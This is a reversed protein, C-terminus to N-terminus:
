PLPDLGRQRPLGDGGQHLVQLVPPLPWGGPGQGRYLVSLWRGARCRRQDEPSGSERRRRIRMPRDSLCRSTLRRASLAAGPDHVYLIYGNGVETSGIAPFNISLLGSAGIAFDNAVPFSPPNGSRQLVGTGLEDGGFRYPVGHKTFAAFLRGTLKALGGALDFNAYACVTSVNPQNTFSAGIQQLSM